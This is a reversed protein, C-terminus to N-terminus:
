PRCAREKIWPQEMLKQEGLFQQLYTMGFDGSLEREVTEETWQEETLFVSMPANRLVKKVQKLRKKLSLLQIRNLIDGLQADVQEDELTLIRDAVSRDVYPRNLKGKVCWPSCGMYTSFSAGGISFSNPSDNDFAVVNEGKGEALVVHYNGPRHDKELNLVDLLNLRNLARQLAPSSADQREACSLAEMCVGPAPDMLTGFMPKRGEPCLFVYETKPVMDGLGIMQAVRYTAICRVANYTQFNGIKVGSNLSYSFLDGWIYQVLDKMRTERNPDLDPLGINHPGNGICFQYAGSTRDNTMGMNFFIKLRSKDQLCEELFERDGNLDKVIYTYYIDITEQVYDPMFSHRKCERFFLNKGDIEVLYVNNSTNALLRVEGSKCCIQRVHEPVKSFSKPKLIFKCVLPLLIKKLKKM